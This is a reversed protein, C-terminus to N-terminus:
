CVFLLSSHTRLRLIEFSEKGFELIKDVLLKAIGKRRYVPLVYLHRVRGISSKNTYPDINLGCVAVVKNEDFAGYFIEGTKDFRNAGSEWSSKAKALFKFGENLSEKVLDDFGPPINSIELLKM